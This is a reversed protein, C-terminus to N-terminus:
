EASKQMSEVIIERLMKVTADTDEVNMQGCGLVLGQGSRDGVYYDSLARVPLEREMAIRDIDKDSTLKKAIDNLHATVQIGAGSEYVDLYDSLHRNLSDILTSHRAEYVSRMHRIHKTLHGESIFKALVPQIYSPPHRDIASRARVFSSAISKPVILFGIRLSPLLFKSFSGVYFTRDNQDLDALPAAAGSVYRYECDYDDEIIWADADAAWKLLQIRRALSMPYGLPFQHAPTVLALKANPAARIGASVDLGEEDVPVPIIENGAASILIRFNPLSPNEIWTQEGPDSVIRTILEIAQTAGATIVVQDSHCAIRRFSAIYHSIAERLPRYGAPDYCHTEDTGPNRWVKRVLKIWVDHPFDSIEPHGPFLKSRAYENLQHAKALEAGRQSLRGFSEGSRHEADSFGIPVIDRSVFTGAGTKGTLYGESWLLEFAAVITTRSCELEDALMRTAPLKAGPQLLGDLILGRIQRYIQQGLPENANRDIKLRIPLEGTSM